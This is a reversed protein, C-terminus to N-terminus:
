HREEYPIESMGHIRENKNTSIRIYRDKRYYPSWFQIPYYLHLRVLALYLIQM